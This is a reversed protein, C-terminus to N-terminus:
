PPNAGFDSTRSAIATIRASSGCFNALDASAELNGAETSIRVKAGAPCPPGLGTTVDSNDGWTLGFYANAGPGLAVTRSGPDHIMYSSGHRLRLHIEKGSRQYVRIRPYGAVSCVKRGINRLVFYTMAHGSARPFSKHDQGLLLDSAACALVAPTAADSGSVSNSPSKPAAGPHSGCSVLILALAGVAGLQGTRVTVTKALLFAGRSFLRRYTIIRLM